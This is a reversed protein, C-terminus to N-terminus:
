LSSRELEVAFALMEVKRLPFESGECTARVSTPDVLLRKGEVEARFHLKLAVDKGGREISADTIYATM